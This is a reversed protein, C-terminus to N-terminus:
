GRVRRVGSVCYARNSHMISGPVPQIQAFVIGKAVAPAIDAALDPQIRRGPQGVGARMTKWAIWPWPM